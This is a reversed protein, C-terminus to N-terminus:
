LVQWEGVQLCEMRTKIRAEMGAESKVLDQRQMINGSAGSRAVDLPSQLISSLPRGSQSREFLDFCIALRPSSRRVRQPALQTTAGSLWQVCVSRSDPCRALNEEIPWGLKKTRATSCRCRM